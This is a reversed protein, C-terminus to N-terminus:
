MKLEQMREDLAKWNPVYRALLSWYSRSHDKIKTHVLEHVILYDILTYPLKIAETNLIIRNTATCSGWRRTMRRIQVGQHTFGTKRALKEVRPPLKELARERYFQNVADQITEQEVRLSPVTILFQSHTFVVDVRDATPVVVLKTYYSKGLYPLRSGTTIHDHSVVEVVDLKALIWRAKKLVMRDATEGSVPKGKLVVGSHKEVE